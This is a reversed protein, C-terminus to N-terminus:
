AVRMAYLSPIITAVAVSVSHAEAIPPCPAGSLASTPPVSISPKPPGGRRFLTTTMSPSRILATPWTPVSATGAPASTM